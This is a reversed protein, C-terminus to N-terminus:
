YWEQGGNARVIAPRDGDRHMQSQFWWERVDTRIIAPQDNDWHLKDHMYWEQSGHSRIIAPQDLERHIQGQQYWVQTGDDNVVAPRNLDRHRVGYRYWLKNTIAGSHIIVAPADKDRHFKGHPDFWEQYVVVVVVVGDRDGFLSCQDVRYDLHYTQPIDDDDHHNGQTDIWEPTTIWELPEIMDLSVASRIILSPPHKIIRQHENTLLVQGIQSLRQCTCMLNIVDLLADHRIMDGFLDIILYDNSTGFYNLEM